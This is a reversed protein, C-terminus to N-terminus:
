RRPVSVIRGNLVWVSRELIGLQPGTLDLFLGQKPRGHGLGVRTAEGDSKVQKPLWTWAPGNPAERFVNGVNLAAVICDAPEERLSGRRTGNAGATKVIANLDVRCPVGDDLHLPNLPLLKVCKNFGKEGAFRGECGQYRIELAQDLEQFLKSDGMAIQLM